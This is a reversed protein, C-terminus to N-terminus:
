QRELLAPIQDPIESARFGVPGIIKSLREGAEGHLLVGWLLATLPDAGRALLAAVIGALVDGSGAVGLGPVGGRWIWTREDPSAIFSTSGKALVVARYLQSAKVAAAPRDRRVEGEGCGLLAAM